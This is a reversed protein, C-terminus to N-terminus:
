WGAGHVIYENYGLRKMLADFMDATARPGFGELPSADSFGFGPISPAIVHFAQHAGVGISPMTVPNALAEIVKSVEAFSGPWGHCFLLPVANSHSSRNHM